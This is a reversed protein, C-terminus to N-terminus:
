IEGFSFFVGSGWSHVCVTWPYDIIFACYEDVDTEVSFKFHM